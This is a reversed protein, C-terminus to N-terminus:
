PKPVQDLDNRMLSVEIRSGSARQADTVNGMGIVFIRYAPIQHNLVLYREVSDAMKQSNAIAAQGQGSSFGQVEIIYGRQSKVQAALDDLADKAQKSLVTQGPRFRLETQAGTKYQDLNGVLTEDAAVRTDLAATTQHATQAKSAAEIAHEDALDAKAAALQIGKQARADVDRTMQHTSGTLEELESIRDRIPQVHRRVYEKTAFPHLILAGFSPEDGDWWDQSSPPSLPATQDGSAPAQPTSSSTTQAFASLALVSSLFLTVFIRSKM